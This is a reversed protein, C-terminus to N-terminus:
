LLSYNEKSLFDPDTHQTLYLLLPETHRNCYHFGPVAGTRKCHLCCLFPREGSIESPSPLRAARAVSVWRCYVCMGCVVAVFVIMVRPTMIIPKGSETLVRQAIYFCLSQQTVCINMWLVVCDRQATEYLCVLRSSM